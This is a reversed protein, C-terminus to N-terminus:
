LFQLIDGAKNYIINEKDPKNIISYILLFKHCDNDLYDEIDINIM